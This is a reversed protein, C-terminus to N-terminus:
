NYVRQRISLKEDRGHAHADRCRSTIRAPALPLSVSVGFTAAARRHRRARMTCWRVIHVFFCFLRCVSASMVAELRARRLANELSRMRADCFGKWACTSACTIETYKYVALAANGPMTFLTFNHGNIDNGIFYVCMVNTCMCAIVAHCPRRLRRCKVKLRPRACHACDIRLWRHAGPGHSCPPAYVSSIFANSYHSMNLNRASETACLACHQHVIHLIHM